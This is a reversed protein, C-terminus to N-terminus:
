LSSSLLVREGFRYCAIMRMAKCRQMDHVLFIPIAYRCTQYQALQTDSYEFLQCYLLATSAYYMNSLHM